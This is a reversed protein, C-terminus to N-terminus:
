AQPWKKNLVELSKASLVANLTDVREQLWGHVLLVPIAIALGTETNVLAESIGGALVKPDNSGLQNLVTFLTVLGSVTGLLGLLPAATGLASLLSLRKDHGPVEKLLVEHVAKEAAERSAHSHSAIAYLVQALSSRSRSCFETAGKWNGASALAWFKRMFKEPNTAHVAFFFLREGIMLFALFGVAFLPYLTVGGAKFWERFRVWTTREEGRTFGTGTSKFQLVDFPPQIRTENRNAQQIAEKLLLNYNGALNQRWAFTKGQLQGTRLLVQSAGVGGKELEGMFLTGLRLRWVSASHGDEFLSPRTDLQQTLTLDLRNIGAGFFSEIATRFDPEKISLAQSALSYSQIRAELNEPFDASLATAMEDVKRKIQTAFAKQAEQAASVVEKAEEAENKSKVLEEELRSAEGALRSFTDELRRMQDESEKAKASGKYRAEWRAGEKQELLDLKEARLSELASFERRLNELERLAPADPSEKASTPHLSGILLLIGAIHGMRISHSLGLNPIRAFM